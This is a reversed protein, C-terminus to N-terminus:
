TYLCELHLHHFSASPFQDVYDQISGITLALLATTIHTLTVMTFVLLFTQISYLIRNPKLRLNDLGSKRFKEIINNIFIVEELTFINLLTYYLSVLHQKTSGVTVLFYLPEESSGSFTEFPKYTEKM